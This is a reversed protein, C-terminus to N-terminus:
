RALQPARGQRLEKLWAEARLQYPDHGIMHDARPMVVIEKPATIQNFSAFVGPPPVVTDILGVGILTSCRIRPAFNVVDYYLSAARVKAPDRDWAQNLQTPYAALRGVDPGLQDSGAPVEALAATVRPHLAAAVLAQLGGQSAGMVVLTRGDWDPRTAMYEVARHCALYMRLFYSTERDDNGIHPYNGLETKALEQYFAEPKGIPLDHANVDLTLWGEAARGLVWDKQLGYVGAWQFIVLAPLKKGAKPRALQAEVHTGRLNDLRVLSYSVDERGSDGSTAVPNLPIKALEALKASWFTAFDAPAPVAPTIQEPAILAGGFAKVEAGNAATGLVELLQWGPTAGAPTTLAAKGATLTLEHWEATELGGNRLRYRSRQVDGTLAIEWTITEGTRYRDRDSSVTLQQAQALLPLLLALVSSTIRGFGARRLLPSIM